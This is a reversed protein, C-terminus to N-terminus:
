YNKKHELYQPNLGRKLKSKKIIKLAPILIKILKNQSKKVLRYKLYEQICHVQYILFMINIQLLPNSLM